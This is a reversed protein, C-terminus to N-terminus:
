KEYEFVEMDLLDMQNRYKSSNIDLIYGHESDADFINLVFKNDRIIEVIENYINCDIDIEELSSGDKFYMFINLIEDMYYEIAKDLDDSDNYNNNFYDDFYNFSDKSKLVNLCKEIDFRDPIYVIYSTSSSNTVFDSKLKM